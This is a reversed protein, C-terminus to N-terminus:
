RAANLYTEREIGFDIARLLVRLDTAFRNLIVARPFTNRACEARRWKSDEFFAFRLRLSLLAARTSLVSTARM